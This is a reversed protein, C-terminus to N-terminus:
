PTPARATAEPTLARTMAQLEAEAATSRSARSRYAIPAPTGTTSTM